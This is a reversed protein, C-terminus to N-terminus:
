RHILDGYSRCFLELLRHQYTALSALVVQLLKWTLGRARLFPTYLHDLPIPYPGTTSVM